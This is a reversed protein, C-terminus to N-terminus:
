QPKPRGLRAQLEQMMGPHALGFGHGLPRRRAPPPTGEPRPPSAEPPEEPRLLRQEPASPEEEPPPSPPEEQREPAPTRRFSPRSRRQSSSRSLLVRSRSVSVDLRSGPLLAESWSGHADGGTSAATEGRPGPEQYTSQDEQGQIDEPGEPVIEEAEARQDETVEVGEVDLPRQAEKEPHLDGRQGEGGQGQEKLQWGAAEQERPPTQGGPLGEAEVTATAGEARAVQSGWTFGDMGCGGEAAASERVEACEGRPEGDGAEFAEEPGGRSNIEMDASGELGFEPGGQTKEWAAEVLEKGGGAEQRGESEWAEGAERKPGRGPAAARGDAKDGAIEAASSSVGTDESDQLSLAAEELGWVGSSTTDARCPVTAEAEEDETDRADSKGLARGAGAGASFRGGPEQSQAGRAEGEEAGCGAEEAKKWEGGAELVDPLASEQGGEAEEAEEAEESAQSGVAEEEGEEADAKEKHSDGGELDRRQAETGSAGPKGYGLNRPYEEPSRETEEKNLAPIGRPEEEEGLGEEPQETPTQPAAMLEPDQGETVEHELGSGELALGEGGTQAEGESKEGRCEKELRAEPTAELGADGEAENAVKNKPLEAEAIWCSEGEEKAKEAQVVEELGFAVTRNVLAQRGEAEEGDRDAQVKFGEGEGESGQGGASERGAPQDKVAEEVGETGLAQSQKPSVSMEAKRKEDVEEEQDERTAEEIAWTRGTGESIREGSVAEGYEPERAGSLNGEKGVSTTGAEARGLTIGAEEEGGSTTGAEEERGSTTGAEEEGGSTTGAEEERGSATRAEEERGSTTGAEEERGSTTEAEEEERDSTTGAEEEGGSTTGAEEERASATGVEEKGGSTTGAEEERSSTTEAEEEERDSTTGAEGEGGSTTGAEEERGSTTGAEEERGSTTEAEEEERDSTTGAEEEGGSTTGAEEERGSATGAEEEGGSTTGAEEERGSTTGAEEERGSTTEAEEEERDSTTGAEEEGGSTTGAEEERGSTTEAEEEERDSTTGAEEEEGSTTGAEEERGSTTEAEEEERDSTTGAEEEGGSITGAEEERGSATGAKEEGGSTTGAEEERGSTTGAEEERGSTTEAEEEERDSTTGAEEEGGSTTGAEEERGSTTGAEEERGSTTRAEEEGGSTTGAEEERGSTTGAEEERGSTTGAEEERGSTTEAEEERGSTTRAEEEGGSTTEAEERGSATRAEEERGSTTGAESETGSERTKEVRTSQSGRLVVMVEGEKGAEKARPAQIEEAVAEKFVQELSERSDGAVKGEPERQWTWESEAKGAVGPKGERIEEAEEEQEWTRRTEERNVEQENPGRSEQTQSGNDRGAKSGAESTKKAELHASPEQCRATKAAEWAGTLQRNAQSGHSSGEEWDWTQKTASGGEQYRGAERPERLGGGEKSQSGGLGELAEQAGKEETEEPRGAAVEGLEEAARAERREVTPVEDGMLYSVFTSLSDLAGRLAQHLGPLHLRLFDM